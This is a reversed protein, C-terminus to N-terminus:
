ERFVLKILEPISPVVGEVEKTLIIVELHAGLIAAEVEQRFRIVRVVVVLDVMLLILEEQAERYLHSQFHEETTLIGVQARLSAQGERDMIMREVMGQLVVLLKGTLVEM